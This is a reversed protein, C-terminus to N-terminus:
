IAGKKKADIEMEIRKNTFWLIRLAHVSSTCTKVLLQYVNEILQHDSDSIQGKYRENFM